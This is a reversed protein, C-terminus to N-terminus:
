GAVFVTTSTYQKGDITATATIYVPSGGPASYSFNFTALGNEDTKVPGNGVVGGYTASITVPVGAVPGNTIDAGGDSNQSVRVYVQLTGSAGPSMSSLWVGVTYAPLAPTPSSDGSPQQIIVPIVTGRSTHPPPVAKNAARTAVVFAFFSVIIVLILTVALSPILRLRQVWLRSGWERERWHFDGRRSRRNRPRRPERAAERTAQLRSRGGHRTARTTADQPGAPMRPSSATPSPYNVGIVPYNLPEPALEDAESIMEGENLDDLTDLSVLPDSDDMGLYLDEEAPSLSALPPHVGQSHSAAGLPRKKGAPPQYALRSAQGSSRRSGARRRRASSKYTSM